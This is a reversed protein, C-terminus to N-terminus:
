VAEKISTSACTCKSSEQGKSNRYFIEDTEADRYEFDGCMPCKGICEAERPKHWERVTM